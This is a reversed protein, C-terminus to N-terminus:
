TDSVLTSAGKLSASDQKGETEDAKDFLHRDTTYREQIDLTGFYSLNDVSAVSYLNEFVNQGVKPTDASKGGGEQTRSQAM